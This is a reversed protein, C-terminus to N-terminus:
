GYRVERKAQREREEKRAEKREEEAAVIGALVTEYGGVRELLRRAEEVAGRLYSTAGWSAHLCLWLTDSIQIFRCGHRCRPTTARRM